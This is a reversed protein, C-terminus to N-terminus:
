LNPTLRVVEASVGARTEQELLERKRVPMGAIAEDITNDLAKDFADDKAKRRQECENKFSPEYEVCGNRILDERRARKGSVVRGDVPSTYDPLDGHGAVASILRIAAATCVCFQPMDYRELKLFREFTHGRLCRFEYMPM